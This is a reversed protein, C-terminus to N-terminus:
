SPPISGGACNIAEVVSIVKENAGKPAQFVQGRALTPARLIVQKIRSPEGLKLSSKDMNWIKDALVGYRAVLHTLRDYFANISEPLVITYASELASAHISRLNLHCGFFMPVWSVGLVASAM